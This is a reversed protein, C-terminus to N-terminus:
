RLHDALSGLPDPDDHYEVALRIASTRCINLSGMKFPPVEVKGVNPSRHYCEIRVFKRAPVDVQCVKRLRARSHLSYILAKVVDPAM